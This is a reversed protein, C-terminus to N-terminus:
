CCWVFLVLNVIFTDATARAEREKAAGKAAKVYTSERNYQQARQKLLAAFKTLNKFRVM